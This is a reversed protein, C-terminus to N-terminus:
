GPAQEEEKKTLILLTSWGSSWHTFLSWFENRVKLSMPRTKNEKNEATKETYNNLNRNVDQMSEQLQDSAHVRPLRNIDTERFNKDVGSSLKRFSSGSKPNLTPTPSTFTPPRPPGPVNSLGSKDAYVEFRKRSDLGDNNDFSYGSDKKSSSFLDKLKSQIASM